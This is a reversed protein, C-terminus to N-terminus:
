LVREVDAAVAVFREDTGEAGSRFEAAILVLLAYREACCQNVGPPDIPYAVVLYISYGDPCGRHAELSDDAALTVHNGGYAQDLNVTLLAVTPRDYDLACAPPAAAERVNLDLQNEDPAWMSFANGISFHVQHPAADLDTAPHYILTAGANGAVIGYDALVAAAREMARRRAIVEGMLYFEEIPLADFALTVAITADPVRVSMAVDIVHVMATPEQSVDDTYYEEYAVYRGDASFGIVEAQPAQGAQAADVSALLGIGVCLGSRILAGLM